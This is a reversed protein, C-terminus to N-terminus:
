LHPEVILIYGSDLQKESNGSSHGQGLGDDDRRQVSEAAEGNERQVGIREKM